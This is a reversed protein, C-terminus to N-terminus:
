LTAPCPTGRVEGLALSLKERSQTGVMRMVEDGKADVGVFTPVARIRYRSALAEGEPEDVNVRVLTGDKETCRRELESVVPAM